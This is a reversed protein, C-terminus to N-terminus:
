TVKLPKHAILCIVLGFLYWSIFLVGILNLSADKWKALYRELVYKEDITSFSWGIVQIVIQFNTQNLSMDVKM